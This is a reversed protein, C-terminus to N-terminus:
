KYTRVSPVETQIKAVEDDELEVVMELKIEESVDCVVCVKTDLCDRVFKNVPSGVQSAIWSVGEPTILEPPVGKLVVWVPLEKPTFDILVMASHHIHWSRALVWNCLVETLISPLVEGEYGWLRNIMSRIVRMPPVIDLFQTVM